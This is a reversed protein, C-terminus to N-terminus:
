TVARCISFMPKISSVRHKFSCSHECSCFRNTVCVIAFTGTLSFTGLMLNECTGCLSYQVESIRLRLSNLLVFEQGSTIFIM